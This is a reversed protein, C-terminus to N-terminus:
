PNFMVWAVTSTDTVLGTITFSTAHVRTISYTGVTGGDTMRTVFIRSTTDATGTEVVDSDNVTVTGAVLVAAGSKIRTHTTGTSGIAVGGAVGSGTKAGGSIVVNGGNNNGSGAAAGGTINVVGGAGGTSTSSAQGGTLNFTHGNGTYAGFYDKRSPGVTLAYATNSAFVGFINANAAYNNGGVGFCDAASIQGATVLISSGLGGTMHLHPRSTSSGAYTGRLFGSTFMVGNGGPDGIYTTGDPRVYFVSTTGRLLDLLKSSSGSATNTISVKLATPSGSTDWTGALDIMSSANSGTLSHGTSTLVSANAGAGVTIGAATLIGGVACNLTGGSGATFATGSSNNFIVGYYGNWIDASSFTAQIYHQHEGFQLKFTDGPSWTKNARFLLSESANSGALITSDAALIFPSTSSYTNTATFTQAAGLYSPNDDSVISNLQAKTLSIGTPSGTANTLAISSPTGAAGNFLVPAGASGINVGLATAIGTGFSTIGTGGSAVALTASLGAATGTTNQNLTPVDAALITGWAPAASATGDGTQTLFKKTTTTNGALKELEGFAGTGGYLLNGLAYSGYGTGGATSAIVGPLLEYDSGNWKIVGSGAYISGFGTALTNLRANATLKADLATQLDTQASLTGTISGWAGGSVTIPGLVGSGNWGIVKNATKTIWKEVLKGTASKETMMVDGTTVQAPLPSCSVLVLLLFFVARMM